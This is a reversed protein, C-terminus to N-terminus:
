NDYPNPSRGWFSGTTVQPCMRRHKCLHHCLKGTRDRRDGRRRKLARCTGKEAAFQM